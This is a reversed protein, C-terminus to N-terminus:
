VDSPETDEDRWEHEQGSLQRCIRALLDLWLQAMGWLVVM